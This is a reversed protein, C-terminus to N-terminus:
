AGALRARLAVLRQTLNAADDEPPHAGVAGATRVAGHPETGTGNPGADDTARRRRGPVTSLDYATVVLQDFATASGLDPLECRPLRAADAAEDAFSQALARLAPVHPLARALPLQQWRVGLRELESRAAPPLPDTSM